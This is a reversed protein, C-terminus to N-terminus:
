ETSFKRMYECVSARGRDALEMEEDLIEVVRPQNVNLRQLRFLVEIAKNQLWNERAAAAGVSAIRRDLDDLREEVWAQFKKQGDNTNLDYHMVM